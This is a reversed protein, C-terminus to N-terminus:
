SNLIQRSLGPTKHPGKVAELGPATHPADPDVYNAVANVYEGLEPGIISMVDEDEGIIKVIEQYTEEPFLRDNHALLLTVQTASEPEEQNHKQIDKLVQGLDVQSIGPIEQTIRWKITALLSDGTETRTAESVFGKGARKMNDIFEPTNAARMAQRGPKDTYERAEKPTLLGMAQRQLRIRRLLSDWGQHLFPVAQEIFSQEGTLGAPCMIVLNNVLEPNKSAVLTALMGGQSHGELELRNIGEAKIIEEVAAMKSMVVDPINYKEQFDKYTPDESVDYGKIPNSFIVERGSEVLDKLDAKYSEKGQSFGGIYVVPTEYKLTEPTVKTYMVEGQIPGGKESRITKDKEFQKEFSEESICIESLAEPSKEDSEVEESAVEITYQTGFDTLPSDDLRTALDSDVAQTSASPEEVTEVEPVNNGSLGENIMNNVLDQLELQKERVIASLLKEDFDNSSISQAGLLVTKLELLQRKYTTLVQEYNKDQNGLMETLETRSAIQGAHYQSTLQDKAQKLEAQLAEEVAYLEPISTEQPADLDSGDTVEHNHRPFEENM